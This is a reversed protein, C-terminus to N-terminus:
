NVYLGRIMHHIQGAADALAKHPQRSLRDRTLDLAYRPDLVCDVRRLSAGIDSGTDTPHDALGTAETTSRNKAYERILPRIRQPSAFSMDATRTTIGPM